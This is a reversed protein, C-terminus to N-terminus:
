AALAVDRRDRAKAIYRMLRTRCHGRRLLRAGWRRMLQMVGGMIGPMFTDGLHVMVALDAPNKPMGKSTTRGEEALGYAYALCREFGPSAPHLEVTFTVPNTTSPNFFRHPKRRPATASEGPQLMLTRDGVQIGLTGETPMFTEDFDQHWHQENGGGPALEIRLVTRAGGTSVATQLFTIRDKILPNDFTMGPEVAPLHHHM